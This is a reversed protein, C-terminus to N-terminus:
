NLSSILDPEKLYVQDRKDLPDHVDYGIDTESDGTEALGLLLPVNLVPTVNIIVPVLGEIRMVEAPQLHMPLPVGNGDRKIQLDLLAPNFDIGGVQDIEDQTIPSSTSGAPPDDFTLDEFEPFLQKFEVIFDDFEERATISLELAEQTVRRDPRLSTFLDSFIEEIKNYESNYRETKEQDEGILNILSQQYLNSSDKIAQGIIILEIWHQFQAIIDESQLGTKYVDRVEQIQQIAKYIFNKLM